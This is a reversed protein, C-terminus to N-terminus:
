PGSYEFKGILSSRGPYEFSLEPDTLKLTTSRRVDVTGTYFPVVLNSVKLDLPPAGPQPNPVRETAVELLEPVSVRVNDDAFAIEIPVQKPPLPKAILPGLGAPWGGAQGSFIAGLAKAQGPDAREDLYVGLTWGGQFIHGPIELYVVMNLDQLQTDGYQGDAIHWAVIAGCPIETPDSGFNCPCTVACRCAEMATGTLRWSPAGTPTGDQAAAVARTNGRLGVTALLGAALGGATLGRLATRRTTRVVSSMPLSLAHPLDM